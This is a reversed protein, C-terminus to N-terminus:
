WKPFTVVTQSIKFRAVVQARFFASKKYVIKRDIKVAFGEPRVMIVITKKKGVKKFLMEKLGENSSNQSRGDVLWPGQWGEADMIWGLPKAAPKSPILRLTKSMAGSFSRRSNRSSM